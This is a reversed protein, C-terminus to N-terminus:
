IIFYGGIEYNPSQQSIFLLAPVFLGKWFIQRRGKIEDEAIRISYKPYGSFM